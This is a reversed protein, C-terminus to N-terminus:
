KGIEPEPFFQMLQDRNLPAKLIKVAVADSMIQEANSIRDAQMAAKPHFEDRSFTVLRLPLGTKAAYMELAKPDSYMWELSERYARAFREIASRKRALSNTNVVTVRVTQDRTTPVESGRAVLRIEGSELSTLGFPPAAWGIDVKGAKVLDFTMQVGGTPVPRAKIGLQDGFGLVINHSTAGFGSYAISNTETAQKLTRLPSNGLVYWYLDDTGTFCPMLVRVPAGEVFARMAASTGIAVGIDAQGSVVAKLTEETGQTGFTKLVLGRKRFFGADQGLTPMQNEWNDIQGVAVVLTDQGFAPSVVVGAALALLSCFSVAVRNM